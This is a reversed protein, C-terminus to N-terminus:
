AEGDEGLLFRFDDLTLAKAFNEEGLIDRALAGKHRQLRRIKEEITGKILLRYAFVTKDQGIRHTRDIAQAEVAPNWWPDFLVVYSAATLNLGTGGAKLSILFVGAGDHKQFSEVLPGRDETDGTLKFTSWERAALEQELIELMTVFQSFVLVKAGEEMLPELTEMLAAVKASGEEGAPVAARRKRRRAGEEGFGVLAPHCCIQRLRLLSTLINFRLKDLQRDTRVNLLQARARKLEAQYLAAQTGDFEIVLDEEVREPLESAVEKKTRRLLFPRTRAALRRRALPDDKRDFHKGFSTRNGLVGPMAFAFISWLDMLRNEIPTGTLALRHPAALSCATQASQSSPNKVAQAEDLIVAGWKRGALLDAHNRLQAYHIVLLDASGDLGSEGATARTWVDVKLGPFFKASEGRWNDQVSKPCVVLAPEAVKKHERLWAIWALAQLTKGLGMDDALVGGFGNETLYCLFHFGEVQYPRMEATIAQPLPPAVRTKIEEIRRRVREARDAPLLSSGKGALAGLQLAHLRQKESTFDHTALGLAALEARQDEGIEIELRRWGKGELRVWRGQARLLLNVDEQSLETDTVKLAVQLDFWDIGHGSEEIDLRLTGSVRGDALSVLEGALEIKCDEPRRELWEVFQGAWTKSIVRQELTIQRSYDRVPKLPLSRLWAGAAELPAGDVVSLDEEAAAGIRESDQVWDEGNWQAGSKGWAACAARARIRLYESGGAHPRELKAKVTMTPKVVRVRAAIKSPIEVGLHRLASVGQSSELARVPINVPLVADSDKFPWREVSYIAGPTVYRWPAGPLVAVATPVSKGSATALELRYFASGAEPEVLRWVLPEPVIKPPAGDSGAVHREFLESSALLRSLCESLRESRAAIGVGYYGRYEDMAGRLVIEAGLPIESADGQRIERCLPEIQGRQAKAFEGASDARSEIVAGGEFLRLRLEPVALASRGTAWQGLSRRWKKIEEAENWRALVGQVASQDVAAAVMGPLDIYLKRAVIALCALFEEANQPQFDAPYLSVEQDNYGWFVSRGCLPFLEASGVSSVGAALWRDAAELFAVSAKSLPKKAKSQVLQFMPGAVAPPKEEAEKERPEIIQVNEPTLLFMVLAAAHKCFDGYPCACDTEIGGSEHFVIKTEYLRSGRVHATLTPGPLSWRMDGHVAGRLCLQQGRSMQMDGFSSFGERLQQVQRATLRIKDGGRM